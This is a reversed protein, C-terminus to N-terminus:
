VVRIKDVWIRTAWRLANISRNVRDTKGALDPIRAIRTRVGTANHPYEKRPKGDDLITVVVGKGTIGQKWVSLVHVDM